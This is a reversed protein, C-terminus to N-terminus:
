RRADGPDSEYESIDDPLIIGDAGTLRQQQQPQGGQIAGFPVSGMEIAGRSPSPTRRSHITGRIRWDIDLHEQQFLQQWKAAVVEPALEVYECLVGALVNWGPANEDAFKCMDSHTAHIAARGADPLAEPVASAYEVIVDRTMGPIHTKLEEWFFFMRFQMSLGVFSDTINQLTESNTGLAHILADNSDVWSKTTVMWVLMEAMKGWRAANAGMHPTGLFIVGYTSVKISRLKPNHSINCTSSYILARKVVIGGLSHCVFIIPRHRENPKRRFYHLESVLTTAHHHVMNTSASEFVKGPDSDYGYTLIRANPVEAPLLDRLWFVEKKRQETAPVTWTKYADGKLGHVAVIDVVSIGDPPTYVVKVGISADKSHVQEPELSPSTTVSNSGGVGWPAM